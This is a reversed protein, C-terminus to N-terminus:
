LLLLKRITRKGGTNLIEIWVIGRPWSETVFRTIKGPKFVTALQDGDMSRIVIKLAEENECILSFNDKAPNPALHFGGPAAQSLAANRGKKGNINEIMVISGSRQLSLVPLPDGSRIFVTAAVGFGDISLCSDRDFNIKIQKRDSSLSVSTSYTGGEACWATSWNGEVESNTSLAQAAELRIQYGILDSVAVISDGLLIDVKWDYYQSDPLETVKIEAPLNKLTLSDVPCGAVTKCAVMLILALLGLPIMNPLGMRGSITESVCSKLRALSWCGAFMKTKVNPAISAGQSIAERDDFFM